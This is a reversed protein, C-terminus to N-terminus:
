MKYVYWVSFMFYKDFLVFKHSCFHFDAIMKVNDSWEIPVGPTNPVINTGVMMGKTNDHNLGCGSAKRFDDYIGCLITVSNPRTCFTNNDDAYMIVKADM